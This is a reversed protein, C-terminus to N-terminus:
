TPNQLNAKLQLKQLLNILDFILAFASPDVQQSMLYGDLKM